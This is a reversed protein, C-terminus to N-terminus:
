SPTSTTDAEKQQVYFTEKFEQGKRLRKLLDPAVKNGAVIGLPMSFIHFQDEKILNAHDTRHDEFWKRDESPFNVEVRKEFDSVTLNGFRVEM